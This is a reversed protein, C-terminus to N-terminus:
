EKPAVIATKISMSGWETGDRTDKILDTAKRKKHCKAWKSIKIM